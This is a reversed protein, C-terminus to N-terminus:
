DNLLEALKARLTELGFGSNNSLVIICNNKDIFRVIFTNYGPWGGGHSVIKGSVSDGSLGWGFGYNIISDNNLKSPTFAEELTAQKVLKETYLAQDWKFLDSTTTNVIGDGQIGDLTIVFSLEKLSDPLIFQKLADHYVFGYAYNPIIEGKSRRTNYTRSHQMDLPTFINQALFEGFPMGSVREIVSALLVFATNSYEWKDGPKFLIAPKKKVLLEIVDENFAIEKPNWDKSFLEMYDPIGSTHTLLHRITMGQYPLEPIFIRVDDSYRLKGREQLIMICMSTFQKSVSALEFVSSDNLLAKTDFNAYGVSKQCIVKGSKSVLVNGNFRATDAVSRVVSDVSSALPNTEEPAKGSSCAFFFIAIALYILNSRM